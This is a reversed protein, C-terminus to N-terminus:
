RKKTNRKIQKTKRLKKSKKQNKKIKVKTKSKLNIKKYSKKGGKNDPKPINNVTTTPKGKIANDHEIPGTFHNELKEHIESIIESTKQRTNPIIDFLNKM